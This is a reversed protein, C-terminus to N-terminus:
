LEELVELLIANYVDMWKSRLKLIWKEEHFAVFKADVLDEIVEDINDVLVDRFQDVVIGRDTRLRLMVQESKIEKEDLSILSEDNMQEWSLYKKWNMTNKYRVAKIWEDSRAFSTYLKDKLWWLLMGSANIWIWLYNEFDWYVTNHLSRKWPLSFNSIEYRKYWADLLTKKLRSFEKRITPDDSFIAQQDIHHRSTRWTIEWTHVEEIHSVNEQEKKRQNKQERKIDYYREAWPFLELTYVSYGDFFNSTVIKEFFDRRVKDRPLRNKVFSEESEDWAVQLTNKSNKTNEQVLHNNEGFAIFDLNYITNMAKIQAIERFFNILNNFVYKRKSSQLIEDNFTQIGFSFRLRFLHKYKKQAKKIFEIVEDFPDPNLEISLEELFETNRTELLTDLLTFLRESWLQFPTGWWIYITKIEPSWLLWHWDHQEQVLAETYKQKLWDINWEKITDIHEEPLVFFSCYACKHNCFPIHVYLSLMISLYGLLYSGIRWGYSLSEYPKKMIFVFKRTM